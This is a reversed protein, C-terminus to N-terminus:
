SEKGTSFDANIDTSKGLKKGGALLENMDFKGNSLFNDITGQSRNHDSVASDAIHNIKEVEKLLADIAKANDNGDELLEKVTSTGTLGSAIVKKQASITNAMNESKVMVCMMNGKLQETTKKLPELTEISRKRSEELENKLSAKYEDSVELNNIYEEPKEYNQNKITDIVQSVQCSAAQLTMLSNGLTKTKAILMETRKDLKALQKEEDSPFWKKPVIDFGM